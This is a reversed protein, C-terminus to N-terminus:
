GAKRRRALLGLGLLGTGLLAMSAPVPVAISANDVGWGDRNDNELNSMTVTASSILQSFKGTIFQINSNDEGSFTPLDFEESGGGAFTVEMTAGQDAVDILFFGISDFPGFDDVSTGSIDWTVTPVDNSDLWQDGQKTVNRGETDSDKVVTEDINLVAATGGGQGGSGTFTGVVTAPNQAASNGDDPFSNFEEFDETLVKNKSAVWLDFADQAAGTDTDFSQVQYDFTPAAFVATSSLMAGAIIPISAALRM